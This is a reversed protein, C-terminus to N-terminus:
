VTRSDKKLSLVCMVRCDQLKFLGCYTLYCYVFNSSNVRTTYRHSLAMATDMGAHHFIMGRVISERWATMMGRPPVSVDGGRGECKLINNYLVVRRKFYEDEQCPRDCVDNTPMNDTLWKITQECMNRSSCFVLIQQQMNVLGQVSLECVVDNVDDKLSANLTRTVLSTLPDYVKNGCVVTEHLIVPRFTTTYLCAHFWSALDRVNSMTASLAILQFHIPKNKLANSLVHNSEFENLRISLYKEELYKLKSCFSIHSIM